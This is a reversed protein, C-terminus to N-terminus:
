WLTTFLTRSAASCSRRLWSVRADQGGRQVERFGSKTLGATLHETLRSTLCATLRETLNRLGEESGEPVRGYARSPVGKEVYRLGVRADEGSGDRFVGRLVARIGLAPTGYRSEDM